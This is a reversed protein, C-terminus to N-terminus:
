RRVAARGTANKKGGRYRVPYQVRACRTCVGCRRAVGRSPFLTRRLMEFTASASLESSLSRSSEVLLPTTLVLTAARVAASHHPAGAPQAHTRTHAHTLSSRPADGM